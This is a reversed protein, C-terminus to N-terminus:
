PRRKKSMQEPSKMFRCNSCFETFPSVYVPPKTGAAKDENEIRRKLPNFDDCEIMGM